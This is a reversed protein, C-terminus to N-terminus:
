DLIINQPLLDGIKNAPYNPLVELVKKLWQYPNINNKKCTGFFSYFMAARKAGEHSGAFLYNKRGLANPRIANEVWNNDIELSGDYLYNLLNDWRPIAYGLAIGMPSKPIATKAMEAIGKGLENFIPLSKNLRLEKREAPTLGEERAEQEIAYLQQIKSMVWGAKQADYALAQQFKRRVHAMCAVHTVGPQKAFWEYVSYGDTQLYGTFNQLLQMPGERGRGQRYDYFLANQLPANYVWHYGQHTKGKRAKHDLVKIPTEDVQLYGQGLVLSKLHEYLPDILNSVHTVWNDITTAPIRVGERKFRETQRYIPLHDVFKETLINSLLAPGAIGKDIPRSPLEGIVIGEGKPRAYKNRIYKRVFLKAPTYDLESTVEQGICKLGETSEAPEIVVEEVPLHSPLEFRGPHPKKKSKVRTYEITETPQEDATVEPIDFPLTLQNVVTNTAYRESKAGYILRQLQSIQFQLYKVEESLHSNKDNLLSNENSLLSNTDNLLSNADEIRKFAEELQNQTDKLQRIEVESQQCTLRLSHNQEQLETLQIDSTNKM